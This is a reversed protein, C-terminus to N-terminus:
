SMTKDLYLDGYKKEFEMLAKGHLRTTHRFTYGQEDSIKEWKKKEIYRSFLIEFYNENDLSEIQYIITNKISTYEDIDNNLENEMKEIKAIANGIRDQTLSTQIKEDYSIAGIGYSLEKYETLETIRNQIKRNLRSVQSLYEKTTM